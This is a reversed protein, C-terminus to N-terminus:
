SDPSSVLVWLRPKQGHDTRKHGYHPQRPKQGYHPQPAQAPPAVTRGRRDSYHDFPPLADRLVQNVARHDYPPSADHNAQKYHEFPPSGDNTMTPSHPPKLPQPTVDPLCQLGVRLTQPFPQTVRVRSRVRSHRYPSPPLRQVLHAM